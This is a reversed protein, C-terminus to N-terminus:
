ATRKLRRGKQSLNTILQELESRSIVYYMTGLETYEKRSTLRGMWVWRNITYRAIHFEKAAQSITMEEDM